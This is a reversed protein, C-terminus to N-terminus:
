SNKFVLLFMVRSRTQRSYDQSRLHSLLSFGGSETKRGTSIRNVSKM